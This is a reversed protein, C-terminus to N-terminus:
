PGARVRHYSVAPECDAVVAVDSGTTYTSCVSRERRGRPLSCWPGSTERKKKTPTKSGTARTTTTTTATTRRCYRTGAPPSVRAVPRWEESKQRSQSVIRLYLREQYCSAQRSNQYSGKIENFQM